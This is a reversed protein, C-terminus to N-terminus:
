LPGGHLNFSTNLAVGLGLKSKVEILVDYWFKNEPTIIQARATGDVHVVAPIKKQYEKQVTFACTMHRNLYYKELITEADEQLIMPCFPQYWERRKFRNNLDDRVNPDTGAAIISRNGLARPGFEASGQYIAGVKGLIMNKAIFKQVEEESCERFNLGSKSLRTLHLKNVKESTRGYYPEKMDRLWALEEDFHRAAIVAAGFAAGDDGM